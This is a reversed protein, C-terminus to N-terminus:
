AKYLTAVGAAPMKLSKFEKENYTELYALWHCVLIQYWRILICTQIDTTGISFGGNM